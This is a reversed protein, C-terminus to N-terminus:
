FSDDLLPLPRGRRIPGDGVLEWSQAHCMPCIPLEGDLVAGYGCDSCRYDGLVAREGDFAVPPRSPEAVAVREGWM